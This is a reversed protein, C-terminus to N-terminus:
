SLTLSVRALECEFNVAGQAFSAAARADGQLVVAIPLPGHNEWFSNADGSEDVRQNGSVAYIWLSRNLNGYDQYGGSATTATTTFPAAVVSYVWRGGSRNALTGGLKEKVDGVTVFDPTIGYCHFTVDTGSSPDGTNNGRLTLLTTEM